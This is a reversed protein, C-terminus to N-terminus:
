LQTVTELAEKRVKWNSDSFKAILKAGLDTSLDIRPFLDDMADTAEEEEADDAMMGKGGAAKQKLGRTPEPPEQDAVKDFEADIMTLLSPNVDEVVARIAVWCVCSGM